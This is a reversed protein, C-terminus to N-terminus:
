EASVIEFTEVVEIAPIVSQVMSCNKRTLEMAKKIQTEQLEKGKIIFHIEVKELRNAEQENRLVNTQITIDEVQMRKKELIKRLVGGSCVAISATLLQYPRFGYQEDGSIHLKGYALDTTFGGEKMKFEM